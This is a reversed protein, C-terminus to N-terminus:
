AVFKMMQGPFLGKKRRCRKEGRPLDEGDEKLDRLKRLRISPYDFQGGGKRRM